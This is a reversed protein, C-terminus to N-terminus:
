YIIFSNQDGENIRNPKITHLQHMWFIEVHKRWNTNENKNAEM